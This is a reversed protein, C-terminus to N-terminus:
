EPRARNAEPLTSLRRINAIGSNVMDTAAIEMGVILSAAAFLVAVAVGIAIFRVSANFQRVDFGRARLRRMELLQARARQLDPRGDRPAVARHERREGVLSEQPRANVITRRLKPPEGARRGGSGNRGEGNTQLYRTQQLRPLENAIRM